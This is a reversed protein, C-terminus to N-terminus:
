FPIDDDSKPAGSAAAATGEAPMYAAVVTRKDGSGDNKDQEAVLVRVTRGVCKSTPFEFDGSPIEVKVAELFQRIRGLASPTLTLWDRVGFGAHDGGIASMQLAVQPHGGSSTGDEASEIRVDHLGPPLIAGASWAEVNDLNITTM